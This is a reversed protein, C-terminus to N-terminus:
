LAVGLGLWGSPLLEVQPSGDVSLVAIALRAELVLSVPGVLHLAGGIEPGAAGLPSARVAGADDAQIVGGAGLEGAVFARVPGLEAGLRYGLLGLVTTERFGAGRGTGVQVSVQAGRPGVGRLGVDALALAGVGQAVGGGSGLGLALELHSSPPEPASSAEVSAAVEPGGKRAALAEGTPRLELWAVQRVEGAGVSFRGAYPRGDRWAKVGYPGPAVAVQRAAGPVLEALVEDRVLDTILARQFGEPLALAAAPHDLEALVLEGEGSLRVDFEPHQPGIETAATASVTHVFAYQYAEALTVRGDGSSDAAGRLGSIFNQTFYSGRLERSELAVEDAASSTLLVQGATALEDTMRIQFGNGRTGGKLALLGGARCADVIALRVEAGTASLVARLDPFTLREPGVELAEGDSHGSFYFVLLVRTDAQAHSAAIKDRARDLAGRVAALSQGQLLELDAPAVNGVEVLTRALKGADDEAYRLPPQAGSGANNGVVVAIRRTEASAVGSLLLAVLVATRIV